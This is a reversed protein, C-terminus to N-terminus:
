RRSLLDALSRSLYESGSVSLHFDDRYLTVGGKSSSCEVADCLHDRPDYLNAGSLNAVRKLSARELRQFDDLQARNVLGECGSEALRFLSCERPNFSVGARFDPPPLVLVVDFELSTLESVTSLLGNELVARKAQPDGVIQSRSDGFLVESDWYWSNIESLIVTGPSAKAMWTMAKDYGERCTLTNREPPATPNIMWVDKFPCGPLNVMYLPRGLERAAILVGESLADATSDGLLYIPSGPAQLNYACGAPNAVSIRHPSCGASQMIHQTLVASQMERVQDSGWGYNALVLLLSGSSIPLVIGLAIIASWRGRSHASARRLPMEVFRYSILAIAISVAVSVGLMVASGPWLLIGFVILPWHWLYISYSWDGVKVMPSSSLWGLALTKASTGSIIIAATAAVPILTWASPFPTESDILLFSLFLIVMGLTGGLGRVSEPLRDCRSGLLAILSGIGFEWARSVPSYFGLVLSSGPFSLGLNGAVMLGFSAVTVAVVITIPAFGHGRRSNSVLLGVLLIIPFVLYFQEEVSLSWTNLLPNEVARGDFYGGSSTAIVINGAVLTAGIATQSVTQQPGFPSLVAASSVVTVSVMLGLAPALRRFRKGFFQSLNIKKTLEWERSLMGTIVFGSIVFFIDVGIFGGPLPLGAHFLLVSLVAVARLGQIDARRSNMSSAVSEFQKFIGM